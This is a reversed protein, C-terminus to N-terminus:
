HRVLLSFMMVKTVGECGIHEIPTVLTLLKKGMGIFIIYGNFCLCVCVCFLFLAPQRETPLTGARAEVQQM